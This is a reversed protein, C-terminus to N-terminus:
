KKPLLLLRINFQCAPSGAYRRSQIIGVVCNTLEDDAVTSEMLNAQLGQTSQKVSILLRGAALPKTRNTTLCQGLPLRKRVWKQVHWIKCGSSHGFSSTRLTISGPEKVTALSSKSGKPPHLLIIQEPPSARLASAALKAPLDTGNTLPTNVKQVRRFLPVWGAMLWRDGKKEAWAVLVFDAKDTVVVEGILRGDVLRLRRLRPNKWVSDPGIPFTAPDLEAIFLPAREGKTAVVTKNLLEVFIGQYDVATSAHETECGYCLFLLLTLGSVRM